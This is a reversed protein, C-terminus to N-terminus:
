TYGLEFVKDGFLNGFLLGRAYLNERESEQWMKQSRESISSLDPTVVPEIVDYILRFGWCNNTRTIKIM